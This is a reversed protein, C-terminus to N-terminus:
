NKERRDFTFVNKNTAMIESLIKLRRIEDVEQRFTLCKKKSLKPPKKM